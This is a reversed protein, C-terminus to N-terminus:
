EVWRYAELAQNFNWISDSVTNQYFVQVDYMISRENYEHQLIYFFQKEHSIKNNKITLGNIMIYNELIGISLDHFIFFGLMMTQMIKM